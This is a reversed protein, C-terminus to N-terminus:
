MVITAVNAELFDYKLDNARLMRNGKERAIPIIFLKWSLSLIMNRLVTRPNTAIAEINTRDTPVAEAL